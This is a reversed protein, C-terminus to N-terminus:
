EYKGFLLWYCGHRIADRAHPQSTKYYHWQKLKEDSCFGKVVGAMQFVLPIPPDATICTHEIVGLLRPTFLNSWSHQACKWHYVKYDECVVIDPRTTLIYNAVHPMVPAEKIQGASHLELNQFLAWGTTEGPDLSLLKGEFPKVKRNLCSKTVLESFALAM